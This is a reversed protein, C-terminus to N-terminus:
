AQQGRIAQHGLKDKHVQPELHDLRGATEQNGQVERLDQPELLGQAARFELKVLPERPERRAAQEVLVRNVKRAKSAARDQSDKLDLYVRRDQLEQIVLVRRLVLLEQQVQSDLLVRPVLLM